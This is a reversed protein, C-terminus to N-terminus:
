VGDECTVRSHTDYQWILVRIVTECPECTWNSQTLNLANTKYSRLAYQRSRCRLRTIRTWSNIMRYIACEPTYYVHSMTMIYDDTPALDKTRGTAPGHCTKVTYMPIRIRAYVRTYTSKFCEIGPRWRSNRSNVKSIHVVCIEAGSTGCFTENGEPVTVAFSEVNIESVSYLVCKATEVAFM